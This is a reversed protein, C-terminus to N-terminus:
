LPIDLDLPEREQEEEGPPPIEEATIKVETDGRTIENLLPFAIERAKEQSTAKVVLTVRLPECGLATIVRSHVILAIGERGFIAKPRVEIAVRYRRGNKENM